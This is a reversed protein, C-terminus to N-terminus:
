WAGHCPWEGAALERIRRRTGPSAREPLGDLPFFAAAATEANARFRSEVSRSLFVVVHDSKGEIFSSYVGFLSLPGVEAGAEERAERRLGHEPTEGAKVGGGPLYWRDDVHHRVLLVTNGDLLIGRVGVTMPRLLRWRLRAMGHLLRSRLGHLLSM